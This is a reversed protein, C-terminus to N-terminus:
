EDDVPLNHHGTPKAFTVIGSPGDFTVLFHRLFSRGVLIRPTTAMARNETPPEDFSYLETILSVQLDPADIVGNYVTAMLREGSAVEAERWNRARLGLQKAAGRDIQIHSAGTDVIGLREIAQPGPNGDSDLARIRVAIEFGLLETSTRGDLMSQGIPGIAFLPM